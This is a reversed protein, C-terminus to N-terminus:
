NMYFIKKVRIYSDKYGIKFMKWPNTKFEKMVVYPWKWNNYCLQVLCQVIMLGYIGLTTYKAILLSFVTITAGSVLAAGVYPVNNSFAIFTAYLSHNAELFIYLAIFSVMILPLDTNSKILAVLPLGVTIGAFYLVWYVTMASSLVKYLEERKGSIRLDIMMPTVTTFFTQSVGAIVTIIQLSLGYSATADLGVFAASIMTTSQTIAFSSLSVLGVKKANYWVVKITGFVEVGTVSKKYEGITIGIGKYSYLMLKSSIRLIFGSTLYAAALAILGLGSYLGLVSLVIQTIKSLIVAKQAQQIAGVGKLASTWYNYYINFFVAINYIYWAYIYNNGPIDRAIYEIYRTGGILLVVLATIAV